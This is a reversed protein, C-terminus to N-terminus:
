RGREPAEFLGLAVVVLVVGSWQWPGLREGLVAVAFLTSLLPEVNGLMTARVPGIHRFAAFYALLGVTVGAGAGAVGLWGTWGSPLSWADAATTVAAAVVLTVAMTCLNVQTSTAERQAQANLLISVCVAGSALAALAVGTADLEEFSKGLVLALAALAALALVSRRPTLPESGRWHFVVALLVAHTSFVLVALGVPMRAVSGILGYSVLAQAFGAGLCLAYTRKALRFGQGSAGLVAATLAVGIAGRLAVVTLTNSGGEFALKAATPAVAVAASSLLVLAVGVLPRRAAPTAM